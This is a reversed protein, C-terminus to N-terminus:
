LVKMPRQFVAIEAEIQRAMQEDIHVYRGYGNRVLPVHALSREWVPRWPLAVAVCWLLLAGIAIPWRLIRTAIVAQGILWGFLLGAIHATNAINGGFANIVFCIVLWVLAAQIVQPTVAEAAIDYRRRVVWLFGFFGYVVGSAGIAHGGEIAQPAGSGLALAVYMFMTVWPGLWREITTSFRLFMVMNFGFHLLGGHLTSATILRWLEGQALRWPYAYLQNLNAGTVQAAFVAVFVAMMAYTFLPAEDSTEQWAM